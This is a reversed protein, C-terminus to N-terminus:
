DDYEENYIKLPIERVFFGPTSGNFGKGLNLGRKLSLAKKECSLTRVIYNTSKEVIDYVTGNDVEKKLITYTM